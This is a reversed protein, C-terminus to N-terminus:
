GISFNSTFNTRSGSSLAVPSANARRLRPGGKSIMVAGTTRELPGLLREVRNRIAAGTHRRPSSRRVFVLLWAALVCAFVAAVFPALTALEPMRPMAFLSFALGLASAAIAVPAPLRGVSRPPKAVIALHQAMVAWEVHM